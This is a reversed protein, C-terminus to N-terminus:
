SAKEEKAKEVHRAEINTRWQSPLMRRKTEPLKVEGRPTLVAPLGNVKLLADVLARNEALLRERDAELFKVHESKPWLRM